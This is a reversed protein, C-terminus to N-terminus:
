KKKRKERIYINIVVKKKIAFLKLFYIGKVNGEFTIQVKKRLLTVFLIYFAEYFM